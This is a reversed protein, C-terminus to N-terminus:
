ECGYATNYDAFNCLQTEMTFLFQYNIIINFLIPGLISDQSCRKPFYTIVVVYKWEEFAINGYIERGMQTKM